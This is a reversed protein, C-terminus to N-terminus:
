WSPNCAKVAPPYLEQEAPKGSKATFYATFHADEHDLDEWNLQCLEFARLGSTVLTLIIAYNELGRISQDEHLWTLLSKLEAKSLAQKTRHRRHDTMELSGPDTL